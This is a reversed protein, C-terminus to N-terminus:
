QRVSGRGPGCRGNTGTGELYRLDDLKQLAIREDDTIMGTMAKRRLSRESGYERVIEKRKERIDRRTVM